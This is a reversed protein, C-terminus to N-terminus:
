PIFERSLNSIQILDMDGHLVWKLLRLVTHATLLDSQEHQCPSFISTLVAM